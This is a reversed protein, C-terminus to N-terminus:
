KCCGVIHIRENFSANVATHMKKTNILYVTGDAVMDYVIGDVIFFCKDNTLLPLHIRYKSVDKHYTYNSKKPISMVKTRCLDYEEIFEYLRPMDDFLPAVFDQETLNLKLIQSSSSLKQAHLFGNEGSYYGQLPFQTNIGISKNDLEKLIEDIYDFKGISKVDKM